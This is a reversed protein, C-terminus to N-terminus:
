AFRQRIQGLKAAIEDAVKCGADADNADLAALLAALVHVHGFVEGYKWACYRRVASATLADNRLYPANLEQTANM